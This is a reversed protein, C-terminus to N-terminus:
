PASGRFLKKSQLSCRSQSLFYKFVASIIVRWFWLCVCVCVCVCVYVCVCILISTLMYLTLALLWNLLYYSLRRLSLVFLGLGWFVSNPIEFNICKAPFNLLHDRTWSFAGRPNIYTGSFVDLFNTKSDHWLLGSM